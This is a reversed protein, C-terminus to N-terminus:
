QAPPETAQNLFFASHERPVPGLRNDPFAANTLMTQYALSGYTFKTDDPAPLAAMLARGRELVDPYQRIFAELTVSGITCRNTIYRLQDGLAAMRKEGTDLKADQVAPKLAPTIVEYYALERQVITELPLAAVKAPATPASPTSTSTATPTAAATIGPISDM